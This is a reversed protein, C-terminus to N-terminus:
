FGYAVAVRGLFAPSSVSLGMSPGAVITLRDELLQVSATPGLFHRAGGEAGPAAAEELDQGVYEVGARVEGVIRFSAGAQIMVDLPDRGESFVHEAHITAGLRVRQIDQSFAAQAWAGNDGHPRAPTWTATEDSYVPAAWAERLYGASAVLHTREMSPPLLQFRMGAVVGASPTAAEGGLGMQGTAFVSLRRLLGVEGGLSVLEGPQATNGAFQRPVSYVRSASSGVSTYSVNSMGIATLPAAIRADDLYLWTRDIRHVDGSPDRPTEGVDAEGDARAIASAFSVLSGAVILGASRSLSISARM